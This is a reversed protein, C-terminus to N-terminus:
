RTFGFMPDTLNSNEGSCSQAIKDKSAVNDPGVVKIQGFLARASADIYDKPFVITYVPSGSSPENVHLNNMWFFYRFGVNEGPPTVYSIAICPFSKDEADQTIFEAAAKREKYGKKFREEKIFFNFNKVLVVLLLGLIAWRGIKRNQTLRFFVLSVLAMYVVEVNTLYYESLQSSSFGYFLIVGVIWVYIVVTEKIKLVKIFYLILPLLLSLFAISQMKLHTSNPFFFLRELNHGLYIAVLNIKEWGVGGAGHNQFFNVYLSKTQSFNHRFEFLLLPISTFTLSTLFGLIDKKHPLRQSLIIAIPIAILPPLLAIHIHWILGVLLGLIWLVKYKGRTISVVCFFYWIIWLNTPTSPVVARDFYVPSLLVAQLFAGILGVTKNFLKAFVWYYSFITAIGIMTIPVVGGIPDMKFLLFFPVLMYYFFPGIFIGMASTQQGILRIHHDVAIDKVIWSYLDGDHAFELRSVPQYIRFFLGIALISVIILHTRSLKRTM